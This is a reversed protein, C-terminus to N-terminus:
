PTQKCDVAAQAGADSQQVNVEAVKAGDGEGPKRIDRGHWIKRLRMGSWGRHRSSVMEQERNGVGRKCLLDTM